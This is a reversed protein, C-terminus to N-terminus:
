RPLRAAPVYVVLTVTEAPEAPEATTDTDM